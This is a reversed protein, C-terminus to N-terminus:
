AAPPLNSRTARVRVQAISLDTPMEGADLAKRFTLLLTRQELNIALADEIVASTAMGLPTSNAPRAM